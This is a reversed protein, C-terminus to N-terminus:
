ESRYTYPQDRRRRAHFAPQRPDATSSTHGARARSGSRRREARSEGQANDASDCPSSTTAGAARMWEGGAPRRAGRGPCYCVHECDAAVAVTIRPSPQAPRYPPSPESEHSSAHSRTGRTQRRRASARHRGARSSSRRPPAPTSGSGAQPRSCACRCGPAGGARIAQSRRCDRSGDRM